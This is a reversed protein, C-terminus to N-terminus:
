STRATPLKRRPAIRRDPPRAGMTRESQLRRRLRTPGTQPWAVRRQLDMEVIFLAFPAGITFPARHLSSEFALRGSGHRM